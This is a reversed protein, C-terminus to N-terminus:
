FFNILFSSVANSSLICTVWEDKQFGSNKDFPDDKCHEASNKTIKLDGEIGNKFNFETM